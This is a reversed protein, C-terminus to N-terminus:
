IHCHARESSVSEQTHGSDRNTWRVRVWFYGVWVYGRPTTLMTTMSEYSESNVARKEKLIVQGEELSDSAVLWEVYLIIPAPVGSPGILGGTDYELKARMDCTLTDVAFGGEPSSDIIVDVTTEAERSCCTTLCVALLAILGLRVKM